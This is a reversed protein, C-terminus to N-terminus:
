PTWTRRSTHHIHLVLIRDGDIRYFIRYPYRVLPVLRIDSHDELRRTSEPWARVHELVTRIRQEVPEVLQPYHESTYALIEDLDALAPATFVVKM